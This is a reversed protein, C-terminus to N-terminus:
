RSTTQTFNTGITKLTPTQLIWLTWKETAITVTKKWRKQLQHLRLFIRAFRKAFMQVNHSTHQYIKFSFFPMNYHQGQHRRCTRCEKLTKKVTQRGHPVWYNRRLQSLTHATGVHQLKQHLDTIILTTYPNDQPLLVPHTASAPVAAHQLRGGCRLLGDASLFLDLQLILPHQQKAHLRKLVDAYHHQQILKGLLFSSLCNGNGLPPGASSLSAEALKLHLSLDMSNSAPPTPSDIGTTPSSHARSKTSSPRPCSTKDRVDSVTHNICSTRRLLLTGRQGSLPLSPSGHLDPFGSRRLKSSPRPSVVHHYIRPIIRHHLM